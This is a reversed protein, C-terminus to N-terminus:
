FGDVGPMMLDLIMAAPQTYRIIELAESGNRAVLVSFSQEELIDKLQVIAPESDEVLLITKQSLDSTWESPAAMMSFENMSSGEEEWATSDHELYLPLSLTFVSGEGLVSKVSISGDLLQAYKKVIALGLGTGGYKRSSSSDAQRFEDFILPLHEKSIGIGSDSVAIEIRDGKQQLYIEVGGSETFKVANNVLNQLIHLCKTADSIIPPLDPNLLSLLQIGKQQALPSLTSVVDAVLHNLDFESVEIEEHGAEIRSLDLIDNILALLQKGNREIVELYSYEEEPIQNALRRNLVGSLAIVSNLPTRLEHSMNSIFSTKLRSAEGLQKKQEELETNQHSLEVTQAKLESKQTELERNQQDLQGAIAQIQRLALIGAVRANLTGWVADIFRIAQQSFSGLTALSIVAIIQDASIVPINIIERPRFQGGVTYFVFRTDDPIRAIHQIKKSVLAIGFEGEFNDAAFSDRSGTGLGISSFYEYSKQDSTLIYVAAMQSNSNEALASLTVQFFQVADNTSLMLDAFDVASDKLATDQQIAEAMQNYLDSLEGFENKQAYDSRSSLDGSKFIQMSRSLENLPRRINRLSYFVVVLSMSLVAGVFLALQQNLTNNLVQSKAFLEDAKNNAFTDIQALGNLLVEAQNGGVGGSQTRAAAESSKGERLLRITEARIANWQIFEQKTQDVDSRPGLYKSYLIDIQDFADAQFTDIKTITEAIETESHFLMLDKMGLHISLIDARLMGIARRVQFPNNYLVRTQEAIAGTQSWAIVGLAIVFIIIVSFGIQLQTKIKMDSLKM